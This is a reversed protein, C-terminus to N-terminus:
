PLREDERGLEERGSPESQITATSVVVGGRCRGLWKMAANEFRLNSMM